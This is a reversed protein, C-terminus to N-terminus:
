LNFIFSYLSIFNVVYFNVVYYLKFNKKMEDKISIVIYFPSPFFCVYMLKLLFLHWIWLMIGKSAGLDNECM